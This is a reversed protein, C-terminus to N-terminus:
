WSHITCYHVFAGIIDKTM